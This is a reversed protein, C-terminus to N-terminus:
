LYRTWDMIPQYNGLVFQWAYMFIPVILGLAVIKVYKNDLLDAFAVGVLPMLPLSYRSLDRHAVCMVFLGYLVYFWTAGSLKIKHYLMVGGIFILAFLYIIDENWIGSVWDMNSAFVAFPYYINLNGGVQFYAWFSGFRFGYVVWLLLLAIPILLYPYFEKIKKTFQLAYAGFLLIGPSRTLVALVGWLASEWYKKNFNKALSMLVFFIFLPENSGVVRDALMRAPFFLAAIGVWMAKHKDKIITLAFYYIGMALLINEVVIATLLANPGTMVLDFIGILAPLGPYHASFYLPRRGSLIDQYNTSIEEPNYWTKEVILFNLGDFNQVIRSMGTNAFNIGLWNSLQLKFPLWFVLISLVAVTTVIWGHKNKMNGNYEYMTHFVHNACKLM